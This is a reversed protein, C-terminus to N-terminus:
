AVEEIPASLLEDYSSLDAPPIVLAPVDPEIPKIIARLVDASPTAGKRLECTLAAEVKSEMTEAALLLIRLYEIEAKRDALGRCLVDFAERFVPTPFLNERYRYRRFGGSKRILSHVVHRYDIRSYDKGRLRAAQLQCEGAFYVEIKEDYLRVRVWEGRLRSPLSYTRKKVTISGGGTVRASVENFEAITAKTMPQM